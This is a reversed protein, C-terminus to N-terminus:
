HPQVGKRKEAEAERQASKRETLDCIYNGLRRLVDGAVEPTEYHVVLRGLTWTMCDVLIAVSRHEFADDLMSNLEKVYRDEIEQAPSRDAVPLSTQAPAEAASEIAVASSATPRSVPQENM